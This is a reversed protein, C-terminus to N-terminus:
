PLQHHFRSHDWSGVKGIGSLSRRVYATLVALAKTAACCATSLKSCNGSEADLVTM